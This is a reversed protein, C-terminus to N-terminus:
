GVCNEQAIHLFCQVPDVVVVSIVNEVNSTLIRTASMYRFTMFLSSLQISRTLPSIYYNGNSKLWATYTGLYLHVPALAIINTSVPHALWHGDM